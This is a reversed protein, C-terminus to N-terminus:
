DAEYKTPTHDYRGDEKKHYTWFHIACSKLFANKGWASYTDRTGWYV